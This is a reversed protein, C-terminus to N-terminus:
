HCRGFGHFFVFTLRLFRMKLYGVALYLFIPQRLYCLGVWLILWAFGQLGFFSFFVWRSNVRLTWTGGSFPNLGGFCGWFVKPPTQLTLSAWCIMLGFFLRWGRLLNSVRKIECSPLLDTFLVGALGLFGQFSENKSWFVGSGESTSQSKWLINRSPFHKQINKTIKIPKQDQNLCWFNTIKIPKQKLCWFCSM